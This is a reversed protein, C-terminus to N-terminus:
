EALCAAPPKIGDKADSPENIAAVSGSSETGAPVCAHSDEGGLGM